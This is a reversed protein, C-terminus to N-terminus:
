RKRVIRCHIHIKLFIILLTYTVSKFCNDLSKEHATIFNSSGQGDKLVKQVRAGNVKEGVRNCCPDGHKLWIQVSGLYRTVIEQGPASLRNWDYTSRAESNWGDRLAWIRWLVEDMRSSVARNMRSRKRISCRPAMKVILYNLESNQIVEISFYVTKFFWLM